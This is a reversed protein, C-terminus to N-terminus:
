KISIGTTDYEQMKYKLENGNEDYYSFKKLLGNEYFEYTYGFYLCKKVFFIKKIKQKDLDYYDFNFENIHWGSDDCYKQKSQLQVYLGVLFRFFFFMGTVIVIIAVVVSSKKM